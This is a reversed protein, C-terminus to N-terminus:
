LDREGDYSTERVGLERLEHGKRCNSNCMCVHWKTNNKNIQKQKKM